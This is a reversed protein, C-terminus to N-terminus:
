AANGSRRPWSMSSPTPFTAALIARIPDSINSRSAANLARVNPRRRRKPALTAWSRPLVADWDRDATMQWQWTERGEEMVGRRAASGIRDRGGHRPRESDIRERTSHDRNRAASLSRQRRMQSRLGASAQWLIAGGIRARQAPHYHRLSETQQERARR